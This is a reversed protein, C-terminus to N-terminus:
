YFLSGKLASLAAVGVSRLLDACSPCIGRSAAVGAPTLRMEKAANVETVEAHGAGNAAVEGPQLLARIAHRLAKESSSVVTTGEKTETVALTVYDATKGMASSLELVRSLAAGAEGLGDTGFLLAADLPTKPMLATVVKDALSPSADPSRNSTEPRREATPGVSRVAM